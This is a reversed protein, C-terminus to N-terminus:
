SLRETLPFPPGWTAAAHSRFAVEAVTGDDDDWVQVLVEVDEDSPEVKGVFIRHVSV